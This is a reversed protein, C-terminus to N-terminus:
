DQPKVAELAATENNTSKAMIDEKCLKATRANACSVIQNARGRSLAIVVDNLSGLQAAGFSDDAAGQEYRHHSFM